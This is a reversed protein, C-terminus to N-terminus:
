AGPRAAQLGGTSRLEAFLHEGLSRKLRPLKQHHGARRLIEVIQEESYRKQRTQKNGRLAPPHPWRPPTLPHPPTVPDPIRCQVDVCPDGTALLNQDPRVRDLIFM